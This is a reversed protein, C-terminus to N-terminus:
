PGISASIGTTISQIATVAVRPPHVAGRPLGRSRLIV